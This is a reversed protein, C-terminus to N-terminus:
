RRYNYQSGANWHLTATLMQINIYAVLGKIKTKINDKCLDQCKLFMKM